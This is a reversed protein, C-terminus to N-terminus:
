EAATYSEGAASEKATASCEVRVEILSADDFSATRSSSRALTLMGATLIPISASLATILADIPKRLVGIPLPSSVRAYLTASPRGGLDTRLGRALSVISRM